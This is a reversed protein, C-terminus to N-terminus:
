LKRKSHGINMCVVSNAYLIGLLLITIVFEAASAELLQEFVYTVTKSPLKYGGVHLLEVM